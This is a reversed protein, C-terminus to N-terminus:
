LPPDTGTESRWAAAFQDQYARHLAAMAQTLWDPQRM